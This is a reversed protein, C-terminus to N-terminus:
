NGLKAMPSFIVATGMQYFLHWALVEWLYSLEVSDFAKVTILSLIARNGPNDVPVKLILFLRRINLAMSRSPIFGSQNRHVIKSIVKVLYTALVRALLKVDSTLLLIPWHSDPLLYGKDPKILLIVVAENMSPLLRGLKLADTFVAKLHPILLDAYKKYVEVSLRDAGSSKGSPSLALAELLEDSALPANLM